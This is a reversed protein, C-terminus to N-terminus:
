IHLVKKHTEFQMRLSQVTESRSLSDEGRSMNRLDNQVDRVTANLMSSINTISPMTDASNNNNNAQEDLEREWMASMSRMKNFHDGWDNGFGRSRAASSLAPAVRELEDRWMTPDISPLLISMMSDEGVADVGGGVGDVDAFTGRAADDDEAVQVM